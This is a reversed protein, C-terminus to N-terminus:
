RADEADEDTRTTAAAAASRSEALQLAVQDRLPRLFIYSLCFGVAAAILAAIWWEFGIAMLIGLPAAFVLVRVVSYIVWARVRV